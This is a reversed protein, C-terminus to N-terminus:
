FILGNSEYYTAYLSPYLRLSMYVAYIFLTCLMCFLVYSFVCLFAYLFAGQRQQQAAQGGEREHKEPRVQIPGQGAPSAHISFLPLSSSSSTLVLVKERGHGLVNRLGLVWFVDSGFCGGLGGGFSM